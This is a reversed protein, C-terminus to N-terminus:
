MHSPSLCVQFDSVDFFNCFKFRTQGSVNPKSSSRFSLLPFISLILNYSSQFFCNMLMQQTNMQAEMELGTLLTPVFHPVLMRFSRKSKSCYYMKLFLNWTQVGLRGEQRILVYRCLNLYYIKIVQKEDSKNAACIERLSPGLDFGVSICCM